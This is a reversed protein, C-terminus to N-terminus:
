AQTRNESCQNSLDLKEGMIKVYNHEAFVQTKYEARKFYALYKKNITFYYITLYVYNNSFHTFNKLKLSFKLIGTNFDKTFNSSSIFLYM